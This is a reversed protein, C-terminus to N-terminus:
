QDAGGRINVMRVGGGSTKAVGTDLIEVTVQVTNVAVAATVTASFSSVASGTDHLALYGSSAGAKVARNTMGTPAASGDGTNATIGIVGICVSSGGSGNLKTSTNQTTYSNLAAYAVSVSNRTNARNCGCLLHYNATDRYVAAMLIHSGTWTGSVESSTSAVKYGVVLCRAPSVGDASIITVNWGAPITPNSGTLNFSVLLLLDGAQHSPITVSTAEASNAAVFAVTM